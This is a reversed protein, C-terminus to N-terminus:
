AAALADLRRGFVRARDMPEPVREYLARCNSLGGGLVIAHPDVLNIVVALARALREAYREVSAKCTEDGAAAAEVIAQASTMPTGRVRWTHDEVLGQGSLFTEICGRRGCYCRPGPREDDRMRPLPSHGWEGAIANAGVVPRGDIVLGGGVGTGIIVGFVVGLGAAAGDSAESVAFCNADNTMRLPRELAAELDRDLPRGNLVTTNANRILGTAPSLSGPHGLGVREVPGVSAEIREVLAVIAAITPRTTTRPRRLGSARSPRAM